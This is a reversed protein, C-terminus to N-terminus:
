RRPRKERESSLAGVGEESRRKRGREERGERRDEPRLGGERQGGRGGRSSGWDEGSRGGQSEGRHRSERGQVLDRGSTPPPGMPERGSSGQDRTSRRSSEREERGGEGAGSRRERYERHEKGDRERGPTRERDRERSSRRSARNSRSERDRRSREHEGRGSSEDGNAPGRSSTEHRVPDQREVVPTSVPSGGTLVQADSGGLTQRPPNRRMSSSRSMDPMNAQAQQLTSNIGALQRRSGGNRSRENSSAPGTPVGGDGAPSGAYNGPTQRPGPGSGRDPTNTGPMSQRGHGHSHSPGHPPPGPPPPPPLSNGIQALREPHVGSPTANTSAPSPMGQGPGSNRVRGQPGGPTSSPTVPGANQEYGGRRGRGSSPGTPPPRDPTPPREAEPAAFRNDLRGPLGQPGGHGGRASGRGRGRPGYPIDAVSQIPNLRGYSDDQHPPKHEPEPGRSSPGHFGSADRTKSGSARDNDRDAPRESRYNSPMPSRELPDRGSARHDAPHNRDHREERGEQPGSEHGYRGSRRPSQARSNRDRGEDRPPRSPTSDRNEMLAAREPNVGEMPEAPANKRGRSPRDSGPARTREPEQALLAAREPNIHPEPADTNGTPATPAQAPPENLRGHEHGRGGRSDRPREREHDNRRSPADPRMQERSHEQGRRDSYERPRDPRSADFSRNDRQERVERHDRSERAERPERPERQDRNDRSDRPERPDRTRPDRQEKGDRRDHGRSQNYREPTFHAPIPVDPRSPLTHPPRDPLTNPRADAKPGNPGSGPGSSPASSRPGQPTSDRKNSDRPGTPKAPLSDKPTGATKTATDTAPSKSDKADKVEGDEEEAGSQKAGLAKSSGPRFEPATARLNSSKDTENQAAGAGGPRFAQVMVWKSKRRQLESMAGQAAVALDVRGGVESDPSPKSATEQKTITQLLASFRTAMFDIAPFYDLVAKLVTIANRIHMWEAGELCSRLASNLNKHWKFLMDRFQEHEVFTLPKGNDDVTLAFGLRPQDSPGKGEKEYAGLRPQDKSAKDKENPVTANKHWRSLDELILKLFRGLYEAEMVSSTFILSRLRNANFLRDYLSMLKFGPANWEHLAKIFRYTYEADATSLLMRPLFCQELLVDSISDPKARPEPFSSQFQKSLYFKWKGQRLLHEACEEHLGIQLQMLEKRKEVKREQGRRSMDTRDRSVALEESKLRDKEQRYIKEPCFLDGLQLAWFTAYLDPTIKQWTEPRACDQISDVIPQLAARVLSPVDSKQSRPSNTSNSTPSSQTGVQEDAQVPEQPTENGSNAAPTNSMSVDGDKDAPQSGKEKGKPEDLKKAQWPFMRHALSARGILFAPGAELGYTHILDPISPVLADFEAPELNSWLLDLYQILIRHSDDIISSLYKIHAEDDPVQFLAAQRYQALNILLQVGLKSDTLAQILRKSSKINEFRKDQGRILTHRRLCQGGAMSLVQHDTFDVSDVIGGMSTILEKLIILDTSNGKILQDNVYQLVPTANLVTYRRFVRGSFRSLAQLWKSTTLAHEAQTRSRSKGLSNMLSWVLVDYSLETFYKACEVFAEILNPYSELQEFAVRFVIGPSSYSTKALQKAMESLNTLSVRKMTGRTESTARAFAAKMAPLRSIQGEFWEAYMSYRTTMPYRRLLDWIANVASANAKTHSLAPLLLRRLLDHWRTLNDESKDEALSKAGIRALKTLLAEDKGINVGSINLLTGCLTFIDDVTQCVPVNDAWEDWYYRYTQSENTDTKDPFPWRLSKRTTLRSLRVSGKPLGSQDFDPVFKTPCGSESKIIPRSDNFVKDVCHHLIRHIRELVEPFAEPIWPFRGLIFLSEPIAGITLLQTLLSVKQELPEPLKPKNDTAETTAEKVEAEAKKPLERRPLTSSIPNDDDGQPLVGAMLLANMPGGRSAREAEQVKKMEKERVQEMDEDAPSLHPYLDIISIFGIKILLAALYLLNAPLVDSEDRAESNYFRLKFGLLQAATRNGAPPLTKTEQVWQRELDAAADDGEAGNTITLKQSDSDAVQRGGLEFFAGLHIERGRDWFAIDRTLKKEELLKEDEETTTWQSYGPTAWLPLGGVYVAASFKLHSRPWWSSVRLFKVFFKFQKILVAAAVDLTVDLVRGVDLDFTGILAKIREFTQEAMEPPPPAVSSTTFLETILKSYGETEERLLNYNAQRYLLNTAQKIGLKAFNDRILGLQQLVPADFVQRMLSSSVGTAILFERLTPRYIAPENDMVISLSDLLLTHPAFAYSEKIIESTEDGIIEKVCAGADAPPLRAEVVAHIFEQFLSSLETIDVDDRSQKGHQLIEDRGREAWTSIKEDTLNDYRYTQRVPSVPRQVPQPAPKRVAPPPPPPPPPAHSSSSPRRQTPSPNPQHNQPARNHGQSSDRRSPGRPGRGRGRGMGDDRDHQGLMTDGPRHPSSRGGEVSLRDNRKRKPPM